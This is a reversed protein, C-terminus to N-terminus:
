RVLWEEVTVNGDSDTAIDRMKIWRDGTPQGARLRLKGMMGVADWEQRDERPTYTQTDDYSSNLQRRKFTNGDADQTLVTADAPATVGSPIKDTEYSHQVDNGDADTETWETVTYSETIYSNFDDRNYKGTWKNWAADGVVSPNGSIVGIIDAAADSSTAKRIKNGNTLVVSYGRRDENNTNDDDWEFYEAYDAGGGNWSVDAYARGDGRLHFERDGLSYGEYITFSSSASRQTQSLLASGTDSASDNQFYGNYGTTVAKKVYFRVTSAGATGLGVNGDSRIRMRESGAVRMAMYEGGHYYTIGGVPTSSTDDAFWIWQEGGTSGSFQIASNDSDEIHLKTYVHTTTSASSDTLHLNSDPASTGIGVNGSSDIRMAESAATNYDAVGFTLAGTLQSSGGTRDQINKVFGTVHTGIGSSDSSFFEINGLTENGSWTIDRDDTLRLTPTTDKLDVLQQPSTTGIGVSDASADVVLTDTDVTFDGSDISVNGTGDLTISAGLTALHDNAQDLTLIEIWADNDENRIYLKDTDTEYWFQNAYTTSPATDGSHLTAIDELVDNLDQRFAAFGQNAIEVDSANQTM